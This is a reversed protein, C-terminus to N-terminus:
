ALHFSVSVCLLLYFLTFARIKSNQLVFPVVVIFIFRFCRVVSCCRSFHIHHVHRRVFHSYNYDMSMSSFFRSHRSRLSFFFTSACSGFIRHHSGCRSRCVLFLSFFLFFVYSMCVSFVCVSLIAIASAIFYVILVSSSSVIPAFNRSFHSHSRCGFSLCFSPLFSFFLLLLRKFCIFVCIEPCWFRTHAHCWSKWRCCFLIYLM